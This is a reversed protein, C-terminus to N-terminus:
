QFLQYFEYWRLRLGFWTDCFVGILVASAILLYAVSIKRGTLRCVAFGIVAALSVAIVPGYFLLYASWFVTIGRPMLLYAIVFLAIAVWTLIRVPLIGRTCRDEVITDASVSM